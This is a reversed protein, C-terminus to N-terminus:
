ASEHINESNKKRRKKGERRASRCFFSFNGGPPEWGPLQPSISLALSTRKDPGLSLFVEVAAASELTMEMRWLREEQNTGKVAPRTHWPHLNLRTPTPFGLGGNM